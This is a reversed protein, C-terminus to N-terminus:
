PASAREESALPAVPSRLKPRPRKIGSPRKFRLLGATEVPTRLPDKPVQIRTLRDWALAQLVLQICTAEAAQKPCKPPGIFIALPLPALALVLPIVLIPVQASPPTAVQMLSRARTTGHIELRTGALLLALGVGRAGVVRACFVSHGAVKAPWGLVAATAFGGPQLLEEAAHMASSTCAHTTSISLETHWIARAIALDASCGSSEIHVLPTVLPLLNVM